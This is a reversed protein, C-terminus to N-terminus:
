VWESVIEVDRDSWETPWHAPIRLRHLGYRGSHVWVFVTGQERKWAPFHKRLVNFWIPWLREECLVFWTGASPVAVGIGSRLLTDLDSALRCSLNVICSLKKVTVSDENIWRRNEAACNVYCWITCHYTFPSNWPIHFYARTTYKLTKKRLVYSSGWDFCGTELRM